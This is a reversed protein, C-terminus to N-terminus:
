THTILAPYRNERSLILVKKTNYLFTKINLPMIHATKMVNTSLNQSFRMVLFHPYMKFTNKFVVQICTHMTNIVLILEMIKSHKLSIDEKFNLWVHTSDELMLLVTTTKPNGFLTAKIAHYPPSHGRESNCKIRVKGYHM